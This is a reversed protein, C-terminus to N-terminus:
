SEISTRPEALEEILPAVSVLCETIHTALGSYVGFILRDAGAAQAMRLRDACYDLPGGVCFAKVMEDTVFQEPRPDGATVSKRLRALETPDLGYRPIMSDSFKGGAM